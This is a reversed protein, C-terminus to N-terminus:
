GKLGLQVAGLGRTGVVLLSANADDATQVIVARADGAEVRIQHTV